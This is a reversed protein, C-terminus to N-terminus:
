CCTIRCFMKYGNGSCCLQEVLMVLMQLQQRLLIADGAATEYRKHILTTHNSPLNIMCVHALQATSHQLVALLNCSSFECLHWQLKGSSQPLGVASTSARWM